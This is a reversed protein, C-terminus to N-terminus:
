HTSDKNNKYQEELEREKANEEEIEKDTMPDFEEPVYPNNELISDLSSLEFQNVGKVQHPNQNGVTVLKGDKNVKFHGQYLGVVRYADEIVPGEYKTLFLLVKEGKKVIPDVEDIDNQLLTITGNKKLEGQSDRYIDKVQVQSEFFIASSYEFSKSDTKIQGVIVVPAGEALDNIDNFVETPVIDMSGNANEGHSHEDHSQAGNNKSEVKAIDVNNQKASYEEGNNCGALGLIAVIGIILKKM